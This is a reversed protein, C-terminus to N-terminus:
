PCIQQGVGVSESISHTFCPTHTHTHACTHALTKIYSAMGVRYVKAWGGDKGKGVMMVIATGRKRREWVCLGGLEGRIVTISCLCYVSLNLWGGAM